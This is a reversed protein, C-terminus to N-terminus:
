ERVRITLLRFSNESEDIRFERSLQDEDEDSDSENIEDDSSDDNLIDEQFNITKSKLKKKGSSSSTKGNANILDLYNKGKKNMPDSKNIDHSDTIVTYLDLLHVM